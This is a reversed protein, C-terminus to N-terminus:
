IWLHCLYLFLLLLMRMSVARGGLTCSPWDLSQATMRTPYFYGECHREITYVDGYVSCSRLLIICRYIVQLLSSNKDNFVKDNRCLRLSWIVVFAGVRILVKFMHDMGNIWNGFINAVSCPPYLASGVQIVSWISRTFYACSSYTNSLRM